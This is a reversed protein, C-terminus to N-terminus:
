TTMESMTMDFPEVECQTESDILELDNNYTDTASIQHNYDNLSERLHDLKKTSNVFTFSKYPCNDLKRHQVKIGDPTVIVNEIVKQNCLEKCIRLIKWVEPSWEMNIYYRILAIQGKKRLQINFEEIEAKIKEAIARNTFICCLALESNQSKPFKKNQLFANEIHWPEFNINMGQLMESIKSTYDDVNNFSEADQKYAFRLWFKKLDRACSITTKLIELEDNNKVVALEQKVDNVEQAVNSKNQIEIRSLFRIFKNMTNIVDGLMNFIESPKQEPQSKLNNFDIILHKAEVILEPITLSSSEIPPFNVATDTIDNFSRASEFNNPKKKNLPKFFNNIENTVPKKASRKPANKSRNNNTKSYMEVVKSPVQQEKQTINHNNYIKSSYGSTGPEGM